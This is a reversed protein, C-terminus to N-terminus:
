HRDGPSRVANSFAQLEEDNINHIKTMLDLHAMNLLLVAEPLKLSKARAILDALDKLLERCNVDNDVGNAVLSLKTMQVGRRKM